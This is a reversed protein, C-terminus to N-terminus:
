EDSFRKRNRILEEIQFPNGHAPYIRKAGQDELQQWSKLVNEM